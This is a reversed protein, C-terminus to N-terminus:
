TEPLLTSKVPPIKFGMSQEKSSFSAFPVRILRTNSPSGVPYMSFMRTKVVMDDSDVGAMTTLVRINEIYGTPEGDLVLSILTGKADNEDLSCDIPNLIGGTLDVKNGSVHIDYGGEAADVGDADVITAGEIEFSLDGAAHPTKYLVSFLNPVDASEMLFLFGVGIDELDCGYEVGSGCTQTAEDWAEPLCNGDCDYDDEAHTCSGELTADPNYNCAEEDMCGMVYSLWVVDICGGTADSVVNLAAGACSNDMGFSIDGGDDFV